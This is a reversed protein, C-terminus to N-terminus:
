KNPEPQDQCPTRFELILFNKKSRATVSKFKCHKYQKRGTDILRRLEYKGNDIEWCCDNGSSSVVFVMTLYIDGHKWCDTTSGEFGNEMGAIKKITDSRMNWRLTSCNYATYTISRLIVKCSVHCIDSPLLSDQYKLFPRIILLVNFIKVPFSENMVDYISSSNKTDHDINLHNQDM